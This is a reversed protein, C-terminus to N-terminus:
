RIIRVSGKLDTLNTMKVVYYYDGPQLPQGNIKGDWSNNYSFAEYIKQGSRNFVTLMSNEFLEISGWEWFDGTGDDNPSFFRPIANQLNQSEGAIPNTADMVVITVSESIGENGENDTAIVTLPYTGSQINEWTFSYPASSDEGLKTTGQFFEVLAITGDPDSADAVIDLTDGSMFSADDSPSTIAVEPSQNTQIHITIGSSTAVSNENDFAKATIVHIGVPANSWIFEYPGTLDEGIKQAGNFFEVKAISGNADTATATISISTGPLFKDNDFPATIAVTPPTNTGVIINVPVSTSVKNENDSAKATLAHSGAPANTWEFTYPSTLDEGLKTVGSFFEVKTVSGNADTASASITIPTGSGIKANNTPSTISVVPAANAIVSITVPSSTTIGKENDTAKATITHTGPAANRWSFSYPSTLDEGLKTAGNFFEVKTITGNEDTATAAINIATGAPLSANNNPSTISVVPPTNSAVLITVPSSTTVGNENDTVKVTITHSGAAANSWVFSYPSTLDEGLKVAGDFFEVKKISGDGDTATASITVQAGSKVSSNNAPSTISVVPPTNSTVSITIPSSTTVGNENDTAKVTITHSGAAANEWAFSYPSTLDEGLKTTGNFFEVKKISGDADTATAGITVQAGSKISSNNAPSTISVVPPTNSTVSIKVASSTTVGNEDDTAKITITHSGAPANSWTFSYPSTLDEGLKTTGNFFEVKKISGNADTATASITIQAGSKVSSNNVPSTISVVPLTNFTVDIVIPASTSVANENDTAKATITHSGATADPWSFNYPSTLDEGLKTTGNFFEVKKISGNADTANATLTIAAGQKFTSNNSPATITVVPATNAPPATTPKKPVYGPIWETGGYEYAGIDPTGIAGDTYGAIAVGANIGPSGAKLRYKLGGVGTGDFQPNVPALLSNAINPKAAGLSVIVDDRYINNRQIDIKRPILGGSKYSHRSGPGTTSTAFVNNYLYSCDPMIRGGYNPNSFYGILINNWEVNHDYIVPGFGQDLYMATNTGLDSEVADSGAGTDHLWNHHVRTGHSNMRRAGYIGGMDVNLKGYDSFDNYGIECNLHSGLEVYGFDVASRGTTYVTNRLVKCGAANEHFIFAAGYNGEYSIHHVLNNEATCNTGLWIATSAAYQIESNKIISNPGILKIGTQRPNHYIVDNGEQMVAHNQYAMKIGDITTNSSAVDANIECGIFHLGIISINSKGRLDFGWNRAKYEVGTPVGGGPQWYYLTGSEYHWEKEQTLLGLKGTVYYYRRRKKGTSGNDSYTPYGITKNSHSTVTRTVTIYWGNIWVKAGVLGGPVNPLANDTLNTASFSQMDDVYRFKKRDFLDDMNSVKPWRAEFQMAGNKFIQNSLLTTTSTIKDQHGNVPLTISKKYINGNHLTWGGDASNLGSIVPTAGPAAQFIIPNGSAGSSAPVITERYTGSRITVVDGARAVSAAKQITAFPQAATGPNNDSAGPGGVFYETAYSQLFCVIFLVLLLIRRM